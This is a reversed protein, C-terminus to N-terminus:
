RWYDPLPDAQFKYANVDLVPPAEQGEGRDAKADRKASRSRELM